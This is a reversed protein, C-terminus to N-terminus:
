VQHHVVYMYDQLLSIAYDVYMIVNFYLVYMYKNIM